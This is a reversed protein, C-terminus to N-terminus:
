FGTKRESETLIHKILKLETNIKDNRCKPM